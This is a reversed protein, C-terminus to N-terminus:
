NLFAIQCRKTNKRTNSSRSQQQIHLDKKRHNNSTTTCLQPYVHEKFLNMCDSATDPLTCVTYQKHPIQYNDIIVLQTYDWNLTRTGGISSSTVTSSKDNSDSLTATSTVSSSLQRLRHPTGIVIPLISSALQQQQEIISGNKPFLKGTRVKFSSMEEKLLSVARRASVCIVM